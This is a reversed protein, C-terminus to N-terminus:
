AQRALRNGTWDMGLGVYTCGTCCGALLALALVRRM